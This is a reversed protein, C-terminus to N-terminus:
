MEGAPIELDKAPFYCWESCSFGFVKAYEQKAFDVFEERSPSKERLFVLCARIFRVDNIKKFLPNNRGVIKVSAVGAKEFDYLSCVGCTDFGTFMNFNRRLNSHLRQKQEESASVSKVEIDYPLFCASDSSNAILRSVKQRLFLPMRKMLNLIYYDCHLKKPINWWFPRKLEKTGHHYTCFGDINMCGSNMIFTEIEIDRNQQAMAAAENVRNQRPLIVRAAGLERYFLITENNFTTGGTSVHIDKKWGMERLSLLLGIDAVIVADVGCDVASRIFSEVERYQGETYLANMTLFVRVNKRHATEAIQKVTDFDKLNAAVWERRNPSAVNSYQKKWAEPMVGCYFEEAGAEILPEVENLGNVPSLIRIM